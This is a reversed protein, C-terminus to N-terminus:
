LNTFSPLSMNPLHVMVMAALGPEPPEHDQQPNPNVLEEIMDAEAAIQDNRHDLRKRTTRLAHNEGHLDHIGEEFEANAMAVGRVDSRLQGDTQLVVNVHETMDRGVKALGGVHRHLLKAALYPGIVGLIMIYQAYDAIAPLVWVFKAFLTFLSFM